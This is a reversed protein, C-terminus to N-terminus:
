KEKSSGFAPRWESDLGLVLPSDQTKAEMDLKAFFSALKERSDVLDVDDLSFPLKLFASDVM